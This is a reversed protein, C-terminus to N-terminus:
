ACMKNYTGTSWARQHWVSKEVMQGNEMRKVTPNFNPADLHQATKFSLNANWAPGKAVGANSALKDHILSAIIAGGKGKYASAKVQINEFAARISTRQIIQTRM